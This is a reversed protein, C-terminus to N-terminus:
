LDPQIPGQAIQTGTIPLGAQPLLTPIQHGKHDRGVWDLVTM